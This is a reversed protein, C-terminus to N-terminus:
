PLVTGEPLLREGYYVQWGHYGLYAREDAEMHQAYVTVARVYRNSNNYSFLAGAMDTLAGHARLLRAAAAISDATSEIDGGEGYIDWTTPIFQMPGRAGASSDGRIRGMRTEVLHIAALYEWPVGVSAEAQKYHNLLVAAPEPTVIRWHPLPRAPDVPGALATLDKAAALHADTAARVRDPLLALAESELEPHFLLMRVAAQQVQGWRDMDAAPTSPDHIATEAAILDAAVQLSPALTSTPAPVTTATPAVTTSAAPQAAPGDGGGDSSCAVLAAALLLTM